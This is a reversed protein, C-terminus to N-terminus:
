QECPGIFTLEQGDEAQKPSGPTTQWFSVENGLCHSITFERDPYAQELGTKLADVMEQGEAIEEELPRDGFGVHFHNFFSERQWRESGEAFGRSLIDRVNTPNLSTILGEIEAFCLDGVCRMCWFDSARHRLEPQESERVVAVTAGSQRLGEAIAEASARELGAALEAPLFSDPFVAPGSADFGDRGFVERAAEFFDWFEGQYWTMVVSWKDEADKNM